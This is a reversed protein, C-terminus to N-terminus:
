ICVAWGLIEGIILGFPVYVSGLGGGGCVGGGVGCVFGGLFFFSFNFTVSVM